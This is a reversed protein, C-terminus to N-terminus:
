LNKKMFTKLTELTKFSDFKYLSLINNMNKDGTLVVVNGHNKERYDLAAAIIQYDPNEQKKLELLKALQENSNEYAFATQANIMNDIVSTAITALQVIEPKNKSYVKKKDLEDLVQKAILLKVNHTRAFEKLANSQEQTKLWLNTDTVVYLVKGRTYQTPQKFTSISVEPVKAELKSVVNELNQLKSLLPTHEKLQLSLNNIVQEQSKVQQLLQNLATSDFMKGQVESLIESKIHELNSQYQQNQLAEQKLHQTEKAVEASFLQQQEHTVLRARAEQQLSEQTCLNYLFKIQPYATLFWEPLPATAMWKLRLDKLLNDLNETILLDNRYAEQQPGKNQLHAILELYEPTQFLKISEQAAQVQSNTVLKGLIQTQLSKRFALQHLFELQPEAQVFHAPLVMPYEYWLQQLKEVLSNFNEQTPLLQPGSNAQINNPNFEAYLAKVDSLQLFSQAQEFVQQQQRAVLRHRAQAQLSMDYALQYLETLDSNAALFYDPLADSYDSTSAKVQSILEEFNEISFSSDALAQAQEGDQFHEFLRQTSTLDLLQELHIFREQEQTTVLQTRAQQQSEPNDRLALFASPIIDLEGLLKETDAAFIESCTELWLILREDQLAPDRLAQTRTGQEQLHAVLRVFEPNEAVQALRQYNEHQEQNPFLSRAQAIAEDHNVLNSILQVEPYQADQSLEPLLEVFDALCARLKEQFKGFEVDSLVKNRLAQAKSQGTRLHKWILNHNYDKLFDRLRTCASPLQGLVEALEPALKSPTTIIATLVQRLYDPDLLEIGCSKDGFLEQYLKLQAHSKLPALQARLQDTCNFEQWYQRVSRQLQQLQLIDIQLEAPVLQSLSRRQVCWALLQAFEDQTYNLQLEFNETVYTFIRELIADFEVTCDRHLDLELSVREQHYHAVVQQTTPTFYQNHQFYIEQQSDQSRLRIFHLTLEYNITDVNRLFVKQRTAYIFVSEPKEGSDTASTLPLLEVVFTNGNKNFYNATHQLRNRQAATFYHYEQAVQEWSLGQKRHPFLERIVKTCLFPYNRPEALFSELQKTLNNSGGKPTIVLGQQVDLSVELQAIQHFLEMSTLNIESVFRQQLAENSIKAKTPKALKLDADLDRKILGQVTLNQQEPSYDLDLYDLSIRTTQAEPPQKLSSTEFKITQNLLNYQVQLIQPQDQLPMFRQQYVQNGLPNSLRLDRLFCENKSTSSSTSPLEKHELVKLDLMQTYAAHLMPKNIMSLQALQELNLEQLESKQSALLLFEEPVTLLRRRTLIVSVEYSYIPVGLEFKQLPIPSTIAM